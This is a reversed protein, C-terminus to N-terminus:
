CNATIMEVQYSIVRAEAGFTIALYSSMGMNEFSVEWENQMIGAEWM